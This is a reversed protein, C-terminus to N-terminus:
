SAARADCPLCLLHRQGVVPGPQAHLDGVIHRAAAAGVQSPQGQVRAQDLWARVAAGTPRRVGATGSRLLPLGAGARRVAM